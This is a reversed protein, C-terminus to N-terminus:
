IQFNAVLEKKRKQSQHIYTRATFGPDNHRYQESVFKADGDSEEYLLTACTHRLSHLGCRDVGAGRLLKPLRTWLAKEGQM